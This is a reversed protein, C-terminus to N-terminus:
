YYTVDEHVNTTTVIVPQSEYTVNHEHANIIGDSSYSADAYSSARSILSSGYDSVLIKNLGGEYVGHPIVIAGYMNGSSNTNMNGAAVSVVTATTGSTFGTLTGGTFSGKYNIVYLIRKSTSTVNDFITEDSVVIGTGTVNVGVKCTVVEGREITDYYNLYETSVTGTYGFWTSPEVFGNRMSDYNNTARLVMNDSMVSSTNGIFSGTGTIEIKTCPLYHKDMSNESLYTYMKTFPKLNKAALVITRARLTPSANISFETYNSLQKNRMDDRTTVSTSFASKATRTGWILHSNCCPNWGCGCSTYSGAVYRQGPGYTVSTTHPTEYLTKLVNTTINSTYEDKVYKEAKPYINLAGEFDVVFYSQVVETKSASTQSILPIETYPLSLLSGTLQYGSALRSSDTTGSPEILELQQVTCSARCENENFDISAKYDINSIDSTEHNAFADVLFGHKDVELGYSDKISTNITAKELETLTVYYEVDSLRADMSKVDSMTYGRIQDDRFRVDFMPNLTYAPVDITCVRMDTDADNIKGGVSYEFQKNAISLTDQRPLFYSYSTSITAESWLPDSVSAGSAVVFDGVSSIRSRFDLCDPLYYTTSNIEVPKIFSKPVSSYSDKSFYDGDSHNFYEFTIRIPRSSLRSTTIRGLDYFEPRQGNDFTYFSTIDTEGSAAYVSKSVPDGSETIKILKVCDAEELSISNSSYLQSTANTLTLTKVALTKSKEKAFAGTRRVLAVITYITTGAINPLGNITLVDASPSLSYTVDMTLETGLTGTSKVVIHESPLYTEGNTLTPLVITTVTPATSASYKKQVVYTMDIAGAANRLTNIASSPLNRVYDGLTVFSSTGKVYRTGATATITSTAVFATPSTISAVGTWTTGILVRDGVKLELDFYTGVGTVTTSTAATVSGSLATVAAKIRATFETSSVSHVNSAFNYGINMTIAFLSLRYEVTAAVSTLGTSYEISRAWATGITAGAVSLLNLKTLQTDSKIMGKLDDVIVYQGSPAYIQSQTLQKIKRAKPVDVTSQSDFAVQYGKVYAKGSSINVCLKSEADLHDVLTTSTITNQGANVYNAKTPVANWYISGDSQIDYSQTPVTLGSLGQTLAVYFKSNNVVVDGLLYPTNSIWQGRDNNRYDKATFKFPKVAYNGSEDYTRQALMGEIAAYQTDNRLYEILGDKIKLLDIFNIEGTDIISYEYPKTTLTLAIALRHAGPAGLNTFGTANDFLSDDENETVISEVYDLGIVASVNSTYKSITITQKPVNVFYGNVYFVGDNVTCISAGGTFSTVPSIKITLGPVDDCTLTEASYFENLVGAASTYKIYLTTTDTSTRTDYHVVLATIKNTSGKVEKGVLSALFPEINVQNHVTEIKLFKVKEDYFVHGPVVMTGNKFVHDGHIKIQNQLISQMQTLERAQVPKAPHYLIKHFNKSADFDDYYPSASEITHTM